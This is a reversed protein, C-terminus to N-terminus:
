READIENVCAFVRLRTNNAQVDRTGEAVAIVANLWRYREDSTGFTCTAVVSGLDSDSRRLNYGRMTMFIRAGDNTTVYGHADPCWVGDERKRAHNAWHLRGSLKPGRLTGELQGFWESEKGGYPEMRVTEGVYSMDVDCLHELRM